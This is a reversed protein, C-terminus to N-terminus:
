VENGQEVMNRVIDPHRSVMSGVLFFTGPVDYTDLIELVQPTWTPDPGDDFTLVITKDPVSVTTARGGPFTLIPGGDLVDDPVDGASAGTRVREDGGVEA